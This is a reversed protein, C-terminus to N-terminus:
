RTNVLYIGHAGDDTEAVFAVQGLDNLSPTSFATFRRGRPAPDGARVVPRVGSRTAVYIGLAIVPRSLEFVVDERENITVTGFRTLIDRGVVAEGALAVPVLTARGTVYVAEPITRSDTRGIFGITGAGTLVVSGFETFRGGSPAEEGTAVVPVPRGGVVAYVGQAHHPTTSAVFVIEGRDNLSPSGDLFFEFAGGGPAPQGSMVVATTSGELNVLIGERSGTRGVFAIVDHDNITPNAFDTFAGGMPARDGASVIPVVHGARLIYLGLPAERSTTRALFGITGHNNLLLDSFTVFTGGTPAPQGEAALLTLHGAAMLYVAEHARPNSTLAGFVLHGQNNVTPDSFEVFTDGDPTPQGTRVLLRVEPSSPGSQALEALPGSPRVAAPAAAGEITAACVLAVLWRVATM